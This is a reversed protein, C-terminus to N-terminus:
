KSMTRRAHLSQLCEVERSLALIPREVVDLQKCMSLLFKSDWKGRATKAFNGDCSWASWFESSVRAAEM